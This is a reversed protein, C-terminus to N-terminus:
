NLIEHIFFDQGALIGFLLVRLDGSKHIEKLGGIQEDPHVFCQLQLIM